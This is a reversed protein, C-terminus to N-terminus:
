TEETETAWDERVSLAYQRPSMKMLASFRKSFYQPSSFGLADSIESVSRTGERLLYKAEDLKFLTYSEMISRGYVRKYVASLYTKGYGLSTTVDALTLRDYLRARLLQEVRSAIDDDYRTEAGPKPVEEARLLLILLEELYTKVLQEAGLPADARVRLQQVETREMPLSFAAEGERVIGRVLARMAANLRLVRGGLGGLAGLAETFSIIFVNSPKERDARITHFCNPPLLIMEGDSLLHEQGDCTSIVTGRDAYVIEWFDHSEGHYQYNKDYEFYHITVVESVSLAPKVPHLVFSAM